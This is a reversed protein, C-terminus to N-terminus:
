MDGPKATSVTDLSTGMRKPVSKAKTKAKRTKTAKAKKGKSKGKRKCKKNGKGRKGKGLMSLDMPVADDAATDAEARCCDFLMTRVHAYSRLIHSNLHCQNQVQPPALALIVGIKVDEDLTKGFRQEYERM